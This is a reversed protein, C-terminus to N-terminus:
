SKILGLAKLNLKRVEEPVPVYGKLVNKQGETNVYEIFKKIAWAKAPDSYSTYFLLHSFSTIPYSDRGPVFIMADIDKSFDGDPSDPLSAVAGRAANMITVENAEVFEGEKNKILATPMNMELAYNLEM